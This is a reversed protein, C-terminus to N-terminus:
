KGATEQKMRFTKRYQEPTLTCYRKFFRIFSQVNCYGVTTSIDQIHMDSQLLLEKAKGMRVKTIYDFITVGMEDKFVGCMYKSSILVASSIDDLTLPKMYNSHIFDIIRRLTDSHQKEKLGEVAQISKSILEEMFKRLSDISESKQIKMSMEFDNLQFCSEKVGLEGMHTMITFGLQFFLHRIYDISGKGKDMQNRIFVELTELAKEKNCSKIHNVLKEQIDTGYIYNGRESSDTVNYIIQNTGVFFRNKLQDIVQRYVSGLKSYDYFIPSLSVSIEIQRDNFSNKISNVISYVADEDLCTNMVVLVRYNNIGTIVNILKDSHPELGEEMITKDEPQVQRNEFDFVAMSYSPLSFQINMLNLISSFSEPQFDQKMLLESISYNRFYPFTINYKSLLETNNTYLEKVILDIMEYENGKKQLSSAHSISNINELLKFLPKYLYSSSVYVFLLLLLLVVVMSWIIVKILFDAPQVLSSYDQVSLYVWDLVDSKVKNVFYKKGNIKFTGYQRSDTLFNKFDPVILGEQFSNNNYYMTSDIGMIAFPIQGENESVDDGFLKQYDFNVVFYGVTDKSYGTFKRMYTIVKHGNVVRPPIVYVDGYKSGYQFLEQDYFDDKSFKTTDTIVYLHNSDFFYISSILDNSFKISSLQKIIDSIMFYNSETFVESRMLDSISPNSISQYVIKDIEAIKQDIIKSRDSLMAANSQSVQMTIHSTSYKLSVVASSVVSVVTVIALILFTKYFVPSKVRKFSEKFYSGIDM